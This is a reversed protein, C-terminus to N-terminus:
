SVNLTQLALFADEKTLFADKPLQKLRDDIIDPNKGMKSAFATAGGAAMIESISYSKYRSSSSQGEGSKIVTRKGM